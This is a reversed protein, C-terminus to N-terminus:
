QGPGAVKGGGEVPTERIRRAAQQTPTTPLDLVASSIKGGAAARVHDFASIHPSDDVGKAIAVWTPNLDVSMGCTLLGAEAVIGERKFRDAWFRGTCEERRNAMRDIPEADAPVFCSLDSLRERVLKLSAEDHCLTQVDKPTPEAFHENMRHGGVLRLWRIDVLEDPWQAVVAPRKCLIQHTHNSMIADFPVDIAFVSAIADM